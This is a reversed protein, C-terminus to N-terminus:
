VVSAVGRQALFDNGDARVDNGRFNERRIEGAFEARAVAHDVVRFMEEVVVAKRPCGCAKRRVRRTKERFRSVSHAAAGFNKAECSRRTDSVARRSTSDDPAARQIERQVHHRVRSFRRCTNRPPIRRVRTAAAVQDARFERSLIQPSGIMGKSPMFNGAAGKTKAAAIRPARKRARPVSNEIKERLRGAAPPKEPRCNASGLYMVPGLLVPSRDGSQRAFPDSAVLAAVSMAVARHHRILVRRPGPFAFLRPLDPQTKRLRWSALVTLITVGIRLWVYVDSAAGDNEAGAARVLHLVRHHRDV